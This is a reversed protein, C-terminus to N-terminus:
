AAPTVAGKSLSRANIRTYQRRESSQPTQLTSGVGQKAQPEVNGKSLPLILTMDGQRDIHRKALANLRYFWGETVGAAHRSGKFPLSRKNLYIAAQSRRNILAMDEQRDIHRKAPANLRYFWGETM